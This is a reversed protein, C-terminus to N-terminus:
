DFAYGFRLYGNFFVAGDSDAVDRGLGGAFAVNLGSDWMWHWGALVQPGVTANTEIDGHYTKSTSNRVILGPELFVGHYTHRFYIPLGVGLETMEFDSDVPSLLSFDGRLAINQNLGYSVSVGYSGFMWGVPNTALNVRPYDYHYENHEGVPVLQGNIMSLDDTREGPTTASVTAPAAAGPAGQAATATPTAPATTGPAEQAAAAPALCALVATATFTKIIANTM